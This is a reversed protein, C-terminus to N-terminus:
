NTLPTARIAAIAKAAQERIWFRKTGDLVYPDSAQLEELIPLSAVDGAAKVGRIASGRIFPLPDRLGSRLRSEVERLAETTLPYRSKGLRHQRIVQGLVEYSDSRREPNPDATIKMLAPVVTQGYTALELALASDPNYSSEVLVSVSSVDAPDILSSVRDVLRGYYRGWAESQAESRAPRTPDRFFKNERDLLQVLARRTAATRLLKNDRGLQELADFRVEWNKSQLKQLVSALNDQSQAGPALVSFGLSLLCIVSRFKTAVDGVSTM